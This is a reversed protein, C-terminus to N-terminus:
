FNDNSIISKLIDALISIGAINKVYSISYIM